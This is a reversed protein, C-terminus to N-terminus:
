PLDKRVIGLKDRFHEFKVHSLPKTMVDAVQEDRSIYQLKLAGRQVMNRIFHYRIEIHKSRDHFVLNKTMKICRQNDCLIAIERMELDFLGALLKRLWIAECTTSCTAIYEAEVTSLAISSQKRSKWSIMASGLSFCCRSTSKRNAVSGAWNADTYGSLTFDHDGDYSLGYDMTGKLYRMVHKAAV